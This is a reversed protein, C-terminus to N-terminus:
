ADDSSTRAVGKPHTRNRRCSIASFLTAIRRGAAAVVQAGHRVTGLRRGRHHAGGGSRVVNIVPFTLAVVGAAFTLTGSAATYDKGAIATGNATSYAVTM